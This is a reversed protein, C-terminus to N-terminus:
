KSSDGPATKFSWRYVKSDVTMSVEFTHGPELPKRPIM